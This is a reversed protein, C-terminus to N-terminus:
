KEWILAVTAKGYKMRSLLIQGDEVCCLASSEAVNGVGITEKVFKSIDLGYRDIKEQLAENGFFKIPIGTREALNLLGTENSKVVTSALQDVDSIEKGIAHCGMELAKYLMEYSTNRRCGLGAILRRPILYLVGEQVPLEKDTIIVRLANSKFMDKSNAEWCEIGKKSLKDKIIQKHPIESDICYLIEKGELLSSNLVKINEKPYVKMGLEGALADPSLLKNVDTATTIVPDSELQQALVRTLTNAGGIHGSLLSIVHEGNEDMVVVAPDVLKSILYPAITRVVIGTSMIFIMADYNHFHEEVATSLKDYETIGEIKSKGRHIYVDTRVGLVERVKVALAAGKETTAFVAYKM